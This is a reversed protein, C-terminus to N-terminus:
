VGDNLDKCSGVNRTRSADGMWPVAGAEWSAGEERKRGQAVM